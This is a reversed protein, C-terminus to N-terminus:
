TVKHYEPACCTLLFKEMPNRAIFGRRCDQETFRRIKNNGDGALYILYPVPGFEHEGTKSNTVHDCTLAVHIFKRRLLRSFVESDLREIFKKKCERDKAHSCVDTGKIHLLAFDHRELEDFAAELKGEINTDTDGTAGEVEVVHMGVYRAAGKVLGDAAIACGIMGFKKEFPTIKKMKGAGRILVFNASFKRKKNAPHASLVAHSRKMFENLVQTTKMGAKSHSHIAAPKAGGIDSDDVDPSLGKGSLELVGRHGLSRYFKFKIGSIEMSLAKALADLGSDDRGARRDLIKWDKGVTAFNARLYVANAKPKLGIGLAELLGRGPSDWPNYGLLELIAVESMSKINYGKEAVPGTWIGCYSHQALFDLNPTFAESLPTKKGVDAAGDLVIFLIKQRPRSMGRM